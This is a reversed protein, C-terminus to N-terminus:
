KFIKKIFSTKNQPQASYKLENIEGNIELLGSNVDLKEVSLNNGLILLNSGAVKLILKNENTEFIKEVGTLKLYKRNELLLNSENFTKSEEKVKNEM